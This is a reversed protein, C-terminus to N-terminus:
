DAKRFSDSSASIITISPAPLGASILKFSFSITLMPMASSTFELTRRTPSISLPPTKAWSRPVCISKSFESFSLTFPSMILLNRPSLLRRSEPISISSSFLPTFTHPTTGYMSTFNSSSSLKDSRNSFFYLVPSVLILIATIRNGFIEFKVSKLGNSCASPTDTRYTVSTRM